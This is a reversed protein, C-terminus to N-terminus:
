KFPKSDFVKKLIKLAEVLTKVDDPHKLYQPDIIPHEQYDSSALRITGVSKPRLLKPLFSVGDKGFNKKHLTMLEESFNLLEAYMAGWDFLTFFPVTMLQIQPRKYQDKNDFPTHFHAGVGLAAEGLPGNYPNSTLWKFYAFPNVTTFPHFGLRENNDALADFVIMIHDQLNSGVGPKDLITELGVEKLHKEPGIGSSYIMLMLIIIISPFMGQM